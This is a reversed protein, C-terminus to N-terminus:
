APSTCRRLARDPMPAAPAVAATALPCPPCPCPSPAASARLLWASGRSASLMARLTNGRRGDSRVCRRDNENPPTGRRHGLQIAGMMSAARTLQDNDSVSVTRRHNQRFCRLRADDRHSRAHLDADPRQTTRTAQVPQLSRCSRHSAVNSRMPDVARGCAAAAPVHRDDLSTGAIAQQALLAAEYVAARM